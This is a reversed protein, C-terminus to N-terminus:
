RTLIAANIVLIVFTFINNYRDAILYMKDICCVIFMHLINKTTSPKPLKLPKQQLQNSALQATDLDFTQSHKSHIQM